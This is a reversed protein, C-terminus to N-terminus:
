IATFAAKGEAQDLSSLSKVKAAVVLVKKGTSFM